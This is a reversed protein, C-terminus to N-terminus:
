TKERNALNESEVGVAVWASFEKMKQPLFINLWSVIPKFDPALRSEAFVTTNQINGVNVFMLLVGVIVLGRAMGFFVGLLRDTVNLGAKRIFLHVISNILVGGMFIIFFLLVFAVIYRLMSSHIWTQLYVQVPEAFKLAILVGFIWVIFSVVERTFGRFLSILTSFVVLGVITYDVWNFSLIFSNTM